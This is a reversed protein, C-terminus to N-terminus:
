AGKMLKGTSKEFLSASGAQMFRPVGQNQATMSVIAQLLLFSLTSLNPPLALILSGPKM